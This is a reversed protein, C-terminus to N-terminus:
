NDGGPMSRIAAEVINSRSVIGVLKMGKFTDVVPLRRLRKELLIRAAKEVSCDPTVVFPEDTMVDVVKSGRTKSVLRQLDKFVVWDEGPEPFVSVARKGSVADLAILDFDSVVGCVRNERAPDLVPMGSIRHKNLLKLADLVAPRPPSHPRAPVEEREARSGEPHATGAPRPSCPNPWPEGDTDPYVVVVEGKTMIDAVTSVPVSRPLALLPRHGRPPCPPAAPPLAPAGDRGPRPPPALAVLATRSRAPTAMHVRDRPREDM